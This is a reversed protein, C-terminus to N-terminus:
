NLKMNAKRGGIPSKHNTQRWLGGVSDVEPPCRTILPSPRPPPIPALFLDVKKEEKSSSSSLLRFEPSQRHNNDRKAM